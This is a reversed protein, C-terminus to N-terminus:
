KISNNREYKKKRCYEECKYSKCDAENYVNIAIHCLKTNKNKCYPCIEKKYKELLEALTM